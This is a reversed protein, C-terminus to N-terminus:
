HSGGSSAETVDEVEKPVKYTDVGTNGDKDIWHMEITDPEEVVEEGDQGQGAGIAVAALSLGGVLLAALMWRKM